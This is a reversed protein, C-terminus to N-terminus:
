KRVVNMKHEIAIQTNVRAFFNNIDVNGFRIVEHHLRTASAKLRRFLFTSIARSANQKGDSRHFVWAPQVNGAFIQRFHMMTKDLGIGIHALIRQNDTTPVTRSLSGQKKGFLTRACGHGNPTFIPLVAIRFGARHLM